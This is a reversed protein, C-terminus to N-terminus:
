LPLVGQLKGSLLSNRGHSLNAASQTWLWIESKRTEAGQGDGADTDSSAANALIDFPQRLSITLEGGKWSCNLVVFNLLRRKQQADQQEFLRRASQALEMLHIGEELYSQNATQHREIDRLCRAQEDRWQVAMRDYFAADIRGDLKETIRRAFFPGGQLPLRRAFPVGRLYPNM